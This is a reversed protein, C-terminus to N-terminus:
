KLKKYVISQKRLEGKATMPDNEQEIIEGTERNVNFEPDNALRFLTKAKEEIAKLENKKKVWEPIHDFKYVYGGASKQIHMDAIEDPTYKDFENMEENSILNRAMDIDDRLYRIERGLEFPNIEGNRVAQVQQELQQRFEMFIEKTKGM